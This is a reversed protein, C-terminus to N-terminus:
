KRPMDSPQLAGANGDLDDELNTQAQALTTAALLVATILAKM